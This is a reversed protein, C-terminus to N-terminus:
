NGENALAARELPLAEIPRGSAEPISLGDFLLLQDHDLAEAILSQGFAKRLFIYRSSFILANWAPHYHVCLPNNHKLVVLWSPSRRDCALFTFQGELLQIHPLIASLYEQPTCDPTEEAIMQFIIESDVQGKRNYGLREFLADDNTITGNHVGYVPGASLPHNNRPMDPSGKTPLRTHGLLLTTQPGVLHLLTRYEPTEVFECAPLPAKFLGSQGNLQTVALGTAARGREENFLLNRTFIDRIAQWEAASREQPYLLIAAIGCM